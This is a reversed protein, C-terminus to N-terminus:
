TLQQWLKLYSLKAQVYKIKPDSSQGRHCLPNFQPNLSSAFVTKITLYLERLYSKWIPIPIGGMVQAEWKQVDTDKM